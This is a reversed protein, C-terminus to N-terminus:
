LILALHMNNDKRQNFQKNSHFVSWLKKVNVILRWKSQKTSDLFLRYTYESEYCSLQYCIGLRIKSGVNILCKEDKKLLRFSVFIFM